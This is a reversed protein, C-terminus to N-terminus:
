DYLCTGGDGASMRQFVVGFQRRWSLFIPKGVGYPERLFVQPRVLMELIRNGTETPVRQNDLLDALAQATGQDPSTQFQCALSEARHRWYAPMVAYKVTIALASIGLVIALPIRLRRVIRATATRNFVDSRGTRGFLSFPMERTADVSVV